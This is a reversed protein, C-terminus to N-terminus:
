DCLDAVEPSFARSIDDYTIATDELVDHLLCAQITPLDPRIEMLYQTAKVPHVIYPEGSLRVQGMHADRSFDYAKQIAAVSEEGLYTRATALIPELLFQPDADQIQEYDFFNRLEQIDM